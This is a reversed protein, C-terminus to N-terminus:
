RALLKVAKLYYARREDVGNQGGNVCWTVEEVYEAGGKDAWQVGNLGRYQHTTLYACSVLASVGVQLLLEPQAVLDLTVGAYKSIIPGYAAYNGRGTLQPWGRGRYTYGDAPGLNGMRDGYAIGAIKQPQYQCALALVWSFRGPWTRRLGAASYRLDEEVPRFGSEHALQAALHAVRNKSKEPFADDIVGFKRMAWELKEAVLAADVASLDPRLGRIVAPTLSTM